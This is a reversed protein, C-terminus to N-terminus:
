PFFFTMQLFFIKLFIMITSICQGLPYPNKKRRTGSKPKKKWHHLFFSLFDFEHFNESYLTTIASIKTLKEKCFRIIEEFKEYGFAKRGSM